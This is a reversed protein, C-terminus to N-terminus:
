RVPRGAEAREANVRRAHIEESIEWLREAEIPQGLKDKEFAERVFLDSLEALLSAKM